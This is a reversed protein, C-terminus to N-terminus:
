VISKKLSTEDGVGQVAIISLITKIALSFSCVLGRLLESSDVNVTEQCQRHISGQDM